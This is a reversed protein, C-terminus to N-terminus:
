VGLAGEIRNLASDIARADAIIEDPFRMLSMHQGDEEGILNQSGVSNIRDALFCTRKRLGRVIEEAVQLRAMLSGEERPDRKIDTVAQPVAKDLTGYSM